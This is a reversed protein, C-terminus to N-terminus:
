TKALVTTLFHEIITILGEPNDSWIIDPNRKFWTMQRKALQLDSRVCLEIAEEQGIEGTILRKIVPYINGDLGSAQWGYTAGLTRAEEIVGSAFMKAARQRIRQELVERNTSIGVVITNSRMHEKRQHNIGGQEIARIVYRRNQRNQPLEVNHKKCHEILEQLTLPELQQRLRVDKPGFRYNYLVGDIYLGTGGAMIPLKGKRSIQDIARFALDQFQAASFSQGPVILDLGYHRISGREEGTLKATGINMGKYVTRSDACIIEGSLRQAVKLALASKGSATQGVIVILPSQQISM